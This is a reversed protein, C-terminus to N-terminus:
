IMKYIMTDNLFLQLSVGKLRNYTGAHNRGYIVISQLDNLSKTEFTTELSIPYDTLNKTPPNSIYPSQQDGGTAIYVSTSSLNQDNINTLPYSGDSRAYTSSFTLNPAINTGNIWVQLEGVELNYTGITTDTRILKIKNYQISTEENTAHEIIKPILSYKEYIFENDYLSAYNM